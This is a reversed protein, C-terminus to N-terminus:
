SFVFALGLVACGLAALSLVVTIAYYLSSQFAGSFGDKHWGKVLGVLWALIVASIAYKLLLTLYVNM